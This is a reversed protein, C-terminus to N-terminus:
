RSMGELDYWRTETSLEGILISSYRNLFYCCHQTAIAVSYPSRMQEKWSFSKIHTEDLGEWLGAPCDLMTLRM